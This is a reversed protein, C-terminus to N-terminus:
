GKLYNKEKNKTKQTIQNDHIRYYLLIQPVIFIKKNTTIARQWLKLDEMPIEDLYRFNEFFSTKWAVCPHAIINHGIKLNQEIQKNLKSYNHESVIKETGDKRNQFSIHDGSVIDYKPLYALQAQIRHVSYYDDINWNFIYDYNQSKALDILYNMAEVHNKLNQNIFKSTPYLQLNTGGYDIELVDFDKYTQDQLSQLSKTIWEPRLLQYINKHFLIICIKM